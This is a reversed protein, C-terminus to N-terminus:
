SSPCDPLVIEFRSGPAGDDRLSITGGHARVLEAAIALGLGTGGNQGSASFATFLNEKVKAPFGPGTDAVIILVGDSQREASVTLRKVVADDSTNTMAQVANRSLNLL